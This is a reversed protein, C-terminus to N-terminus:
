PTPQVEQVVVAPAVRDGAKGGGSKAARERQRALRAERFSNQFQRVHGYVMTLLDEDYSNTPDWWEPFKTLVVQTYALMENMWEIGRDVALAGGFLRAKIVGFESLDGLTPRKVTFTGSLREGTFPDVYDVHFSKEFALKKESDPTLDRIKIDDSEGVDREAAEQM